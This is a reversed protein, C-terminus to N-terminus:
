LRVKLEISIEDIEKESFETVEITRVFFLLPRGYLKKGQNNIVKDEIQSDFIVRPVGSIVFFWNYKNMFEEFWFSLEIAEKNTKAWCTFKILNDHWKGLISKRYGPNDPDSKTEMLVPKLQKVSGSMPSGQDFMGPERKVLGISILETELIQDPEEWTLVVKRPSGLRAQYNVLAKELLECFQFYNKSFGPAVSRSSDSREIIGAYTKSALIRQPSELLEKPVENSGAV